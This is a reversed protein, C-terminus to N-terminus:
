MWNTPEFHSWFHHNFEKERKKLDFFSACL